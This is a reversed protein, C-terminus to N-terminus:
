GVAGQWLPLSSQGSDAPAVIRAQPFFLTITTGVGPASDIMLSGGHLEVLAKVLPLGLGTGRHERNQASDIQM